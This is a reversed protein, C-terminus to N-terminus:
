EAAERIPEEDVAALPNRRGAPGAYSPTRLQPPLWGVELAKASALKAMDGKKGDKLTQGQTMDAYALAVFPKTIGAFYADADFFKKVPPDVFDILARENTGFSGGHRLVGVNAGVLEALYILLGPVSQKGAWALATDFTECQQPHADSSRPAKLEGPVKVPIDYSSAAKAHLGAVLIQLAIEFQGSVDAQLAQTMMASLIHTTSDGPANLDAAPKQQPKAGTAKASAKLVGLMPGRSADPWFVVGATARQKATFTGDKSMQLRNAGFAKYSGWQDKGFEDATEVFLWGEELWAAKLTAMADSRLRDIIDPSIWYAVDGFADGLIEGGAAIYADKGILAAVASDSKVLEQTFAQKIRAPQGLEWAGAKKLYDAQRRPDPEVTFAAAAELSIDGAELAAIVDPHLQALRLRQLVRREPVGFHAAVEAISRADAMKKFARFEEVPTLAQRMINEASTIEFTDADNEAGIIVVVPWDDTVVIGMITGGEDRLRRLTRLRRNGAQVGFEPGPDGSRNADEGSRPASSGKKGKGKTPPTAGPVPWSPDWPRVRLSQLVGKVPISAYLDEISDLRKENGAIAVPDHELAGLRVTRVESM